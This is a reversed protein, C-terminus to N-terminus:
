AQKQKSVIIKGNEIEHLGAIINIGHHCKRCVFERLQADELVYYHDCAETPADVLKTYMTRQLQANTFDPVLKGNEEKSGYQIDQIWTGIPKDFDKSDNM